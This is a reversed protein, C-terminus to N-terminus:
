AAEWDVCLQALFDDGPAASEDVRESAPRAGYFGVASASVLVRPRTEAQELARVVNRTSIVRSDYLRRKVADTYRVGVAREGALHVVADAGDLARAWDGLEYPDWRVLRPNGERAQGRTLITVDDGRAILHRVLATGIYGTGGTVVIRKM